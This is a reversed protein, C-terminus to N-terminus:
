SYNRTYTWFERMHNRVDGKGSAWLGSLGGVFSEVRGVDFKVKWPRCQLLPFILGVILPEHQESGWVFSGVPVTFVVDAVRGLRKRWQNSMLAPCIFIHPLNPRVHIASCLQALAVVAAAPPPTWVCGGPTSPPEFWGNSDLHTWETENGVTDLFFQVVGPQREEASKNLPVFSLMSAGTMVGNLLDGRSLGDTGQEIMRTGAVWVVRIFVKGSMELEKLRLVLEFLLPSSSTGRYFASEATSNDTFLFIETGESLQEEKALEEVRQVLNNLERFNSSRGSFERTWIGHKVEVSPAEYLWFSSGFGEGSADGFLIAAVAGKPPRARVRPAVAPRTLRKLAEVDTKFRPVAQVAKPADKPDYDSLDVKLKTELEALERRPIRWGEKDRTPRWSELTHHLGKLYPVMTDYTLSVYVLFGRIRELEKRDIWELELMDELLRVRSKTKDWREQSVRKFAGDPGTEIVAGAWAGPSKSPERRKRAADQLGYYSASKAVCSSAKWSEEETAATERLDDVYPHIDAAMVGDTRLKRVPSLSPDYDWDGPLNLSVKSWRFVNTPDKRCGLTLERVRQAGQTSQYPSPGMGMACRNWAEWVAPRGGEFTKLEDQFLGTLDIGTYERLEPHLWFNLFMEGFDNDASWTDEDVSWLMSDVTSLGFWPAFLVSNLGSKSADYVMRIDDDGKPVSFFSTLSQIGELPGIYGRARVKQIKSREKERLEVDRNVRQKVRYRPPDGIWMPKMGVMMDEMWETPFRWFFPSSGGDWDWWSAGYAHAVASLGANWGHTSAVTGKAACDEEYRRWWSFFDSRVKRRWYTLLGCRLGSVAKQFDSESLNSLATQKRLRRDWLYVPIEADDGKTAKLNRDTDDNAVESISPVIKAEPPVVRREESLEYAVKGVGPDEELESRSRSQRLECTVSGELAEFARKGKGKLSPPENGQESPVNGRESPVSGTGNGELDRGGKLPLSEACKRRATNEGFRSVVNAGREPVLRRLRRLVESRVKFPVPMLKSWRVLEEETAKKYISAPFDLALAVEKPSPVRRVFGTRSFVCPLVRPRGVSRLDLKGKLADEELGKPQPCPTGKM